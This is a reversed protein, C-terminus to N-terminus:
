SADNAESHSGGAPLEPVAVVLGDAVTRVRLRPATVDVFVPEEVYFVRREAACRSLLQQPRQWVFDWRLHSLCVLDYEAVSDELKQDPDRM